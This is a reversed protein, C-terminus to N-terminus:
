EPAASVKTGAKVPPEITINPGHVKPLLGAGQKELLREDNQNFLLSQKSHNDDFIAAKNLADQNKANAQGPDNALSQGTVPDVAKAMPYGPHKPLMAPNALALTATLPVVATAFFMIASTKM